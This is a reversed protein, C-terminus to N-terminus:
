VATINLDLPYLPSRMRIIKVILAVDAQPMLQLPPKPSAVPLLPEGERRWVPIPDPNRAKFWETLEPGGLVVSGPELALLVKQVVDFAVGRQLLLDALVKADDHTMLM